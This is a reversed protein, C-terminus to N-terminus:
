KYQFAYNHMYYVSEVEISAVEFACNGLTLAYCEPDSTRQNSNRGPGECEELSHLYLNPVWSVNM